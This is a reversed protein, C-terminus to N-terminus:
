KQDKQNEEKKLNSTTVQLYPRTLYKAAAAKVDEMTVAEVRAEYTKDYNIGFGHLLNLAQQSAQEGITTDSQAHIAILKQKAIELEEETIQGSAAKRINNFIREVVEDVTAPYTQAVFIMYGPAMGTRTICHVSYVLGEGRLEKHLWGGPYGYGGIVANLLRIAMLEKEDRASPVAYSILVMGTDKGTVKHIARNEALDNARDFNIIQHNKVKPMSGFYKKAMALAENENIDGYITLITNEPDLCKEVFFSKLSEPTMANITEKKGGSVIHFPTTKPLADAWAEFLESSPNEARRAIAGLILTKEQEFKEEPFTSNLWCDAFIELAQPFDEKMVLASGSITNRGSSFSLLGGISDFWAMIEENSRTKTGKNLMNAIFGARGATEPTDLINGGHAYIKMDVMPLHSDKKILIRLGNELEFSHTEKASDKDAEKKRTEAAITGKPVIRITSLVEPRFYKRAVERIQEATVKQLEEVYITDFMPTGTSMFSQALSEAQQQVTQQDFILESAKQKKARALETESVMENQLRYLHDLATKVAEAENKPEVSMRVSFYGHAYTPTYSSTTLGLVLSKEYQMDRVMPSSEGASLIYSLLDLAYLDKHYLDVTPFTLCIDTTTGDMERVAQRPAIQAPETQLLVESDFGRPTNAFEQAVQNLVAETEVAGVVVFVMNNPIYRSRYFDIIQERKTQRLVDLYGIIPLHGPNEQYFTEQIMKWMVRNRNAEGDALERQIVELERSFEEPVFAAYQMQDAILEICTEVNRVPCDIFYATVDLSTYANTIGGFTDILKRIEEESRKTTSGGAVVHELVHSLGAGLYKTENISGTNKVYCRVTAVPATHNEQIIVTLGNGLKAVTIDNPYSQRSLIAQPPNKEQASATNPSTSNMDTEKEQAFIAPTLPFILSIVLLLMPALSLSLSGFSFPIGTSISNVNLDQNKTFFLINEKTKPSIFFIGAM